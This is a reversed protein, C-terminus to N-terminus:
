VFFIVRFRSNKENSDRIVFNVIGFSTAQIDLLNIPTLASINSLSKILKSHVFSDFLTTHLNCFPNWAKQYDHFKM